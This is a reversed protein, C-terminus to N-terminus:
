EDGASGAELRGDELGEGLARNLWARAVVWDRKVTAVSVGLANATEEVDLGAFFRCEVVRARRPHRRELRQLAQDLSLLEAVPVERGGLVEEFTIHRLGGGRKQAGRGLAHDVLVRRMAQAALAFFQARNKWEIRELRALRLFAEHVVGTPSLTHGRREGAMRRRAIRRLDEYVLPLLRDFAERDGASLDGLIRTIEGARPDVERGDSTNVM